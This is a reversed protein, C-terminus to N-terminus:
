ALQLHQTPFQIDHGNTTNGRAKAKILKTQRQIFQLLFGATPPRGIPLLTYIVGRRRPAQPRQSSGRLNLIPMIVGDGNLM